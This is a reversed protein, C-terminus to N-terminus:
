IKTTFMRMANQLIVFPSLQNITEPAYKCHFMKMLSDVITKYFGANRMKNLTVAIEVDCSNRQEAKATEYLWDLYYILYEKIMFSKVEDQMQDSEVRWWLYVGIGSMGYFDTDIDVKEHILSIMYEDLEQLFDQSLPNTVFEQSNILELLRGEM